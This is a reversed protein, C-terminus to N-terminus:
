ILKYREKDKLKAEDRGEVKKNRKEMFIDGTVGVERLETMRRRKNWNNVKWVKLSYVNEAGKFM